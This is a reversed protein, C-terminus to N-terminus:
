RRSRTRKFLSVAFVPLRTSMAMSLREKSWTGSGDEARSPPRPKSVIRRRLRRIAGRGHIREAEGSGGPKGKGEVECGVRRSGFRPKGIVEATLRHDRSFAGRQLWAEARRELEGAQRKLLFCHALAQAEGPHLLGVPEFRGRLLGQFPQRDALEGEGRPDANILRLAVARHEGRELVLAARFAPERQAVVLRPGVQREGGLARVVAVAPHGVQVGRLRPLLSLDVLQDRSVVAGRHREVEVALRHGRTGLLAAVDKPRRVHLGPEAAVPVAILVERVGAAQDFEAQVIDARVRLPHLVVQFVAFLQHAQRDIGRRRHLRGDDHLGVQLPDRLGLRGDAPFRVEGAHAFQVPAFARFATGHHHFGLRPLKVFDLEGAELRLHEVVVAGRRKCVAFAHKGGMAAGPQLARDGGQLRRVLRLRGETEHHDGVGLLVGGHDGGDGLRCPVQPRIERHDGAIQDIGSVRLELPGLLEEGRHTRQDFADGEVRHEAVVFPVRVVVVLVHTQRVGLVEVGEAVAVRLEEHQIGVAVHPRSGLM